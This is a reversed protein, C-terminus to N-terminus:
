FTPWDAVLSAQITLIDKAVKYVALFLAANTKWLGVPDEFRDTAAQRGGFAARKTRHHVMGATKLDSFSVLSVNGLLVKQRVKSQEVLM